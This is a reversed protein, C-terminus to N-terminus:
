IQSIWNYASVGVPPVVEEAPSVFIPDLIPFDVGAGPYDGSYRPDYKTVGTADGVLTEHDKRIQVWGGPGEIWMNEITKVIDGVDPWRKNTAYLYEVANKYAMLAIYAAMGTYYPYKNWMAHYANVYERQVRWRKPDPSLFWYRVGAIIGEPTEKGPGHFSEQGSGAIVRMKEFVGRPKAQSLFTVWDGGWLSTFLVDPNASLTKTIHPTYDTSYLPPWSESVVEFGPMHNKLYTTLLNYIDHGYTYDPQVFAWKKANPWLTTAAKAAGLVETLDQQCTRFVTSGPANLYKLLESTRNGTYFHLLHQENAVPATALAVGSGMTGISLDVKDELALKRFEAVSQDTSGQEREILRIKRGLIGGSDNIQKALLRLTLVASEALVAAPGTYANPSALKIDESPIAQPKAETRTGAAAATTTFTTTVYEIKEAVRPPSILLTALSGVILGAVGAGVYGIFVRRSVGHPSEALNKIKREAGPDIDAPKGNKGIRSLFKNIDFKAMRIIM